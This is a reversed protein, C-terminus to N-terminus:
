SIATALGLCSLMQSTQQRMNTTQHGTPCSALLHLGQPAPWSSRTAESVPVPPKLPHFNIFAIIKKL